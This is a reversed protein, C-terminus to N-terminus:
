ATMSRHEYGASATQLGCQRQNRDPSSCDTRQGPSFLDGEVQLSVILHGAEDRITESASRTVPPLCAICIVDILGELASAVKVRLILICLNRFAM